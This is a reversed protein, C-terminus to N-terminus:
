QGLDLQKLMRAFDGPSMVVKTCGAPPKDQSPQRRLLKDRADLCLMEGDPLTPDCDLEIKPKVM